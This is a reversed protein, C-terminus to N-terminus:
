ALIWCVFIYIISALTGSSTYTPGKQYMCIVITFTIKLTSSRFFFGDSLCDGIFISFAFHSQISCSLIFQRLRHSPTAMIKWGRGRSHGQYHGLNFFGLPRYWSDTQSINPHSVSRKRHPSPPKNKVLKERPSFPLIAGFCFFPLFFIKKKREGRWGWYRTISFIRRWTFVDTLQYETTLFPTHSSRRRNYYVVRWLRNPCFRVFTYNHFGFYHVAIYKKARTLLSGKIRNEGNENEM